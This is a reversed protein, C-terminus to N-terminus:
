VTWLVDKLMTDQLRAPPSHLWPKYTVEKWEKDQQGTRPPSPNLRAAKQVGHRRWARRYGLFVNNWYRGIFEPRAQQQLLTQEPQLLRCPLGERSARLHRNADKGKMVWLPCGDYISWDKDRSARNRGKSPPDPDRSACRGRTKASSKHSKKVM